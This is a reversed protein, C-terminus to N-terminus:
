VYWGGDNNKLPTLKTYMEVNRRDPPPHTSGILM